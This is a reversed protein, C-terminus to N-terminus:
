DGKELLGLRNLVVAAEQRTLADRPRTGDFVGAAAAKSWAEKAWSDPENPQGSEGDPEKVELGLYDCIGACTAQALKDRYSGDKLLAVDQDNTHFGYELLVAPATTSALVTYLEHALGSGWIVVGAARIRGIIAAALKNRVATEPPASTFAVFGRASSGAANSHLSVFLDAGARNSVSARASLGPYDSEIERTSVVTIGQEELLPRLRTYLDWTFECEKYSGDLSGNVCGPGHGPDLCVIPKSMPKDEKEPPAEAPEKKAYVIIYNHCKRGDGPIAQGDFWCQASGGGDGMVFSTCGDAAMDDRLAEPTRADATGDQSAYLRLYGPRMGMGARGRKGGQGTKDYSPEAIPGNHGILCTTSWFNDRADRDLTLTIDPGTDWAYGYSSWPQPSIWKGDAKLLPCASGDANWMGGTVVYVKCDPRKAQAQAAVQDVSYRFQNVFVEVSEISELPINCIAKM